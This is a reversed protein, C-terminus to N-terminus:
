VHRGEVAFALDAVLASHCHLWAQVDHSQLEQTAALRGQDVARGVIGIIEAVM